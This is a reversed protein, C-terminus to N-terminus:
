LLLIIANIYRSHYSTVNKDSLKITISSFTAIYTKYSYFFINYIYVCVHMCM